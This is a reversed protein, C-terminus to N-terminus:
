YQALGVDGGSGRDGGSGAAASGGYSTSKYPQGLGMVDGNRRQWWVMVEEQGQGGGMETAKAKTPLYMGSTGFFFASCIKDSNDLTFVCCCGARTIIRESLEVLVEVCVCV